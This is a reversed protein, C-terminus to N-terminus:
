HGRTKRPASIGDSYKERQAFTTTPKPDFKVARIALRRGLKGLLCRPKSVTKGM